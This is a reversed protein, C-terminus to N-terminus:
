MATAAPFLTGGQPPTSGSIPVFGSATAIGARVSTGNSSSMAVVTADWPLILSFARAPSGSGSPQTHPEVALRYGVRGPGVLYHEEGHAPVLAGPKVEHGPDKGPYEVTGSKTPLHNGVGPLGRHADFVPCASKTSRGSRNMGRSWNRASISLCSAVNRAELDAVSWGTRNGPSLAAAVASSRRRSPIGM